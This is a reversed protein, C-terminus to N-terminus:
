GRLAFFLAVGAGVLLLPAYQEMPTKLPLNQVTPVQNATPPAVEAQVKQDVYVQFGNSVSTTIGDLLTQLSM